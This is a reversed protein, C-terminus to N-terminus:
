VNGCVQFIIHSQICLIHNKTNIFVGVLSLCNYVATQEYLRAYAYNALLSLLRLVIVMALHLGNWEINSYQLFCTRPIQLGGKNTSYDNTSPIGWTVGRPSQSFRCVLILKYYNNIYDCLSERAKSGFISCINKFIFLM